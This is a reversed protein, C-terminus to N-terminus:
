KGGLEQQIHPAGSLHDAPVHIAIIWELKLQHERIFAVIRDVGDLSLHCTPYDIEMVSDIVACSISTPDQVVYSFTNTAEDFFATILPVDHFDV